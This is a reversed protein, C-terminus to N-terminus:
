PANFVGSRQTYHKKEGGLTRLILTRLGSGV